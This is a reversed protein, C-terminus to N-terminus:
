SEVKTCSMQELTAMIEQVTPNMSVGFPIPLSIEVAHGYYSRIMEAFTHLAVAGTITEPFVVSFTAGLVESLFTAIYQGPCAQIPSITIYPRKSNNHM